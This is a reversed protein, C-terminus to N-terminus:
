PDQRALPGPAGQEAEILADLQALAQETAAEICEHLTHSRLLDGIVQERCVDVAANAIRARVADIREATALDDRHIAIDVSPPPALAPAASGTALALAAANLLTKLM